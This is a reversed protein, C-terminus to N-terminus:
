SVVVQLFAVSVTLCGSGQPSTIDPGTFSLKRSIGSMKLFRFIILLGPVHSMIVWFGGKKAIRDSVFLFALFFAM